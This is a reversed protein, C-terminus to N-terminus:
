PAGTGRPELANRPAAAARRTSLKGTDRTEVSPDERAEMVPASRYVTRRSVGPLQAAVAAAGGSVRNRRFAGAQEPPSGAISVDFAEGTAQRTFSRRAEDTRHGRTSTRIAAKSTRLELRVNSAREFAGTLASRLDRRSDGMPTFCRSDQEPLGRALVHMRQLTEKPPEGGSCAWAERRGPTGSACRCDSCLNEPDRTSSHVAARRYHIRALVQLPSSLGRSDTCTALQRRASSRMPLRSTHASRDARVASYRFM